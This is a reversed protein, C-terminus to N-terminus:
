RRRVALLLGLLLCAGAVVTLRAGIANAEGCTVDVMVGVVLPVLGALLVVASAKRGRSLAYAAPGTWAAACLALLPVVATLSPPAAPPDTPAVVALLFGVAVAGAAAAAGHRPRALIAFVAGALGAAAYPYALIRGETSCLGFGAIGRVVVHGM